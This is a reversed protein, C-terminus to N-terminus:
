DDLQCLMAVGRNRWHSEPKDSPLLIDLVFNTSHGTTSLVGRRSSSKYVPCAYTPQPVFNAKDGPKFWIIPVTDFLIKPRSEGIVKRDRSWRAGEIFLGRVYVGDKPKQSMKTEQDLVEFEFGLHDIPIKYRRAYNQLSGTLFSQTFYFGSLWFVNPMGHTIWDRLFQLRLILDHVYSGLPKLSPYSKAAWLAPVKGVMMSDFVDELEASMVVLGKIAKLVDYLSSHIVTTLRNFRILEQVLVTNM